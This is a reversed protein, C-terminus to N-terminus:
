PPTIITVSVGTPHPLVGSSTVIASQVPTLPFDFVYNMAMGGLDQVYCPGFAGFLNQILRNLAPTTTRCINAAAKTLLLPLYQSDPLAYTQTLSSGSFMPAQSLPEWDNDTNRFGIYNEPVDVQLERGVGLIVGWIDLGFGQASLINWVQYFFNSLNAAPDLCANWSEILSTLSPSNSYQALITSDVDQM